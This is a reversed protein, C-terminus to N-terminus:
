TYDWTGGFTESVVSDDERISYIEGVGNTAAGPGVFNQTTIVNKYKRTMVLGCGGGGPGGRLSLNGSLPYAGNIGRARISAFEGIIQNAVIVILKGGGGGGGGPGGADGASGGGGGGAGSNGLGGAGGLNPGSSSGPGADGGDPLTFPSGPAYDKGYGTGGVGVGKSATGNNGNSGGNKGTSSIGGGSGGGSGGNGGDSTNLVFAQGNAQLEAGFELNLVDCWIWFASTDEATYTIGTTIRLTKVMLPSTRTTAAAQSSSSITLDSLSSVKVSSLDSFPGVLPLIPEDAFGGILSRRSGFRM